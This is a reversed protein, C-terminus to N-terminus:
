YSKAETKLNIQKARDLISQVLISILIIEILIHMFNKKNEQEPSRNVRIDIGNLSLLIGWIRTHKVVIFCVICDGSTSLIVM